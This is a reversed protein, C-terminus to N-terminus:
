EFNLNKAQRRYIEALDTEGLAELVTAYHELIVPSQKGGYLMAHKFHSKAELDMGMLHLIWAYTDLYTANDPEAIITKRSMELAKKLNRENPSPISKESNEFEVSLYYAYNNLVHVYEPNVKLAKEYHQYARKNDNLQHYIDGLATNAIVAVGSDKPALILMQHYDSASSELEGIISYCIGRIQLFDVNYPFKQIGLTACEIAKMYNESYYHILTKNFAPDIDDPCLQTLADFFNLSEDVRGTKYFYSGCTSLLASDLPHTSFAAMYMSDVQPMFTQVFQPNATLEELYQAKLNPDMAADELVPM